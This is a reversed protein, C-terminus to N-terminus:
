QPRVNAHLYRLDLAAIPRSNIMTNHFATVPFVGAVTHTHTLTLLAKHLLSSQMALCSTLPLRLVTGPQWPFTNQLEWARAAVLSKLLFHSIIRYQWLTIVHPAPRFPPHRLLSVRGVPVNILKTLTKFFFGRLNRGDSIDTGLSRNRLFLFLNQHQQWDGSFM